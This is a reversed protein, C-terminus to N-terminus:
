GINSYFDDLIEIGKRTCIGRMFILIFTHFIEKIDYKKYLLHSMDETIVLEILDNVIKFNVNSLFYGENVGRQFFVFTKERRLKHMAQMFELCKPYKHLDEFFSPNISELEELKLRLFDILVDMVNGGGNNSQKLRNDNDKEHRAVVEYLLDEKNECIEYLTRKSISLANAIDDMKVSKIGREHFMSMATKVVKGKLEQRYVNDVKM